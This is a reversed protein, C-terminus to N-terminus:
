KLASSTSRVKAVVSTIDDKQPENCMFRLTQHHYLADVLQNATRITRGPGKKM